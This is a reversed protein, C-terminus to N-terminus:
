TPQLCYALQASQVAIKYLVLIRMGVRVRNKKSALIFLSSYITEKLM